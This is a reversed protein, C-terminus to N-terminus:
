KAPAPYLSNISNVDAGTPEHWGCIGLDGMPQISWHMVSVPKAQGDECTGETADNHALGLAHGFEHSALSRARATANALTYWFSADTDFYIDSRGSAGGASGCYSYTVGLENAARFFPWGQIDIQHFVVDADAPNGAMFVDVNTKQGWIAAASEAHGRMFSGINTDIAITVRNKTFARCSASQQAM